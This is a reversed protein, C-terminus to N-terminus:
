LKTYADNIAKNIMEDINYNNNKNKLHAIFEINGDGGKIPSFDLKQIVLSEEKLFENTDFLVKKHISKEKVIGKKGIYERGAEFQPKILVVIDGNKKLLKRAIPIVIKLSIFSVDISIFDALEGILDSNVNKINTKELNVVRSNEKLEKALQDKGVDIAYVKKVRNKLMCDTFGGTSAGIDIAVKNYLNINFEKLAKELKYGGRGVYSLPPKLLVINSDYSVKLSPKKVIENDVKVLGKKIAIKGRQRSKVLGKNVLLIDIRKKM